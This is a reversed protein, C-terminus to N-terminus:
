AVYRMGLDFLRENIKTLAATNGIGRLQGIEKTSVVKYKDSRSIHKQDLTTIM